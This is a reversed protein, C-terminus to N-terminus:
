QGAATMDCGKAFQMQSLLAKVLADNIEHMYADDQRMTQIVVGLALGFERERAGLGSTAGFFALRRHAAGYM